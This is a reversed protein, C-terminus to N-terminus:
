DALQTSHRANERRAEDARRSQERAVTRLQGRIAALGPTRYSGLDGRQILQQRLAELKADSISRIDVVTM